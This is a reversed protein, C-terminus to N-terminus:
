EIDKIELLDKIVYTEKGTPVTINKNNIFLISKIGANCACEVDLMRDGVYFTHEKDLDYKNILYNMGTPDPKRPFGNLACVVEEFYESLETNKLVRETSTGRHTLVYSKIGNDRLFNLIDKAHIMPRIDRLREGTLYSYRAKLDEFPIGFATEMNMIFTAVSDNIIERLIYKKEIHINQENYIQYLSEVIVDYSDLLTGDLDWIFAYKSM